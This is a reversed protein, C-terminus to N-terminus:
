SVEGFRQLVRYLAEVGFAVADYPVRENAAHVLAKRNFGPPLDLPLFGYTQIGLRAFYRGDTVGALLDPVPAGTPDMERLVGALTDFLGMDPAAPGADYRVVELEVEDGVIPRLEAIMDDPGFGPLLRGDMEVVVESPIVNVKDSARVMTACVTNHLQADYLRGLPGLEDLVADTQLPDILRRLTEAEAEPLAAIMAGFMLRAAPTVHVPLRCRDLQSLFHALKAMIGGRAPMAGHGGPGRLTAKMWCMQKEAVQIPYFKHAGFYTAGGGVEGLAFRIGDFLTPHADVLYGAGFDGGNEEDSVLLLVVDGPPTFGEAKARLLAATMMAVGSKMDLAGRGWIFGDVVEAAFPPREWLQGGTTVVDVHGYLLLPPAEGRGPLRTILNPREPDRALLTTQFGARTLLDNLYAICARENGPPNTTDFRILTRLLEAPQQYAASLDDTTTM